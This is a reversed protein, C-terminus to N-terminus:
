NFSILINAKDINKLEITEVEKAYAKLKGRMKIPRFEISEDTVTELKGTLKKDGIILELDRGINKIYQKPLKLPQDIGPSSVELNYADEIINEEEIFNGILRSIKACEDISVGENVGDLTLALKKKSSGSLSLDVIYLDERSLNEEVLERIQAIIEM